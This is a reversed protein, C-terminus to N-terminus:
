KVPIGANKLEKKLTKIMTKNKKLAPVGEDWIRTPNRWTVSNSGHMAANLVKGADWTAYGEQMGNPFPKRLPVWGMLYDLESADFYVEAVVGNNGDSMVNSRVLSRLLRETRNYYEPEWSYYKDLVQHIIRYAEEQAMRVATYSRSLIYVKMDEISDFTPM